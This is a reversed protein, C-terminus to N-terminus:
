GENKNASTSHEIGQELKLQNKHFIHSIDKMLKGTDRCTPCWCGDPVVCLKLTEINDEMYKIFESRNM